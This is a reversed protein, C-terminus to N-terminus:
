GYINIYLFVRFVGVCCTAIGIAQIAAREVNVLNKFLM